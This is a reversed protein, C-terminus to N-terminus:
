RCRNPRACKRKLALSTLRVSTADVEENLLRPAFNNLDFVLERQPTGYMGFNNIHADGCMVVPIGSVPETSLDSAMVCASGRLFPFPSSAMRGMRLPILHAQRGANSKALLKLPDPRTKGPTYKAQSEIPM